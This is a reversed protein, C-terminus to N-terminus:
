EAPRPAEPELRLYALALAILATVLAAVQTGRLGGPLLGVDARFADLFLRSVAYLFLFQIAQWGARRGADRGRWLWAAIILCAITQYLQVPHREAEWLRVAWPASSLTGFADGSFFQGLSILALSLAAGPALADLLPLLSVGQRRLYRWAAFLGVLVAETLAIAAPNLSILLTPQDAYAEWYRLAHTIRGGIIGALLGYFGANYVHDGNAGRRTAQRAGLALFLWGALITSLSGTPLMLPGLDLTPYM